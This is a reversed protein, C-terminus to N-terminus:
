AEEVMAKLSDIKERLAVIQKDVDENRTALDEQLENLISIRASLGDIEETSPSGAVTKAFHAEMIKDRIEEKLKVDM